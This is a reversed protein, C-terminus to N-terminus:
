AALTARAERRREPADTRGLFAPAVRGLGGLLVVSSAILIAVSHVSFGVINLIGGAPICLAAWAPVVRARWLGVGVLVIGVITAVGGVTFILSAGTATDYRHALAVMQDRDAGSAGMQWFMLETMSDGVAVLIGFGALGGGVYGLWPARERLLQMLGVFAPVLLMTGITIFIAYVYFREPHRAVEALSAADSAHLPPSAISSVLYALPALVLSSGIALRPLSRPDLHV